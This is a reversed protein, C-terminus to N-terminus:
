PQRLPFLLRERVISTHIGADRLARRALERATANPARYEGLRGVVRLGASDINIGARTLAERAHAVPDPSGGRRSSATDSRQNTHDSHRARPNEGLLDDPHEQALDAGMPEEPVARSEGIRGKAVSRALEGLVANDEKSPELSPGRIGDGKLPLQGEACAEAMAASAASLRRLAEHIRQFAIVPNGRALQLRADDYHGKAQAFARRVAARHAGQCRPTEIMAATWYLLRRVDQLREPTREVEALFERIRAHLEIYEAPERELIYVMDTPLLSENEDIVECITIGGEAERHVSRVAIQLLFYEGSALLRRALLQVTKDRDTYISECPVRWRAGEQRVGGVSLSGVAAKWLERALAEVESPGDGNRFKSVLDAAASFDARELWQMLEAPTSASPEALEALERALFGQPDQIRTRDPDAGLIRGRREMMAILDDIPSVPEGKEAKNATMVASGLRDLIEDQETRTLRRSLWRVDEIEGADLDISVVADEVSAGEPFIAVVHGKRGRASIELRYGPTREFADAVAQMWTVSSRATVANQENKAAQPEAARGTTKGGRRGRTKPAIAEQIQVPLNPLDEWALTGPELERDGVEVFVDHFLPHSAVGIFCALGQGSSPHHFRLVLEGDALKPQGSLKYTRRGVEFEKGFLAYWRMWAHQARDREKETAEIEALDGVVVKMSNLEDLVGPVLGRRTSTSPARWTALSPRFGAEWLEAEVVRPPIRHAIVVLEGQSEYSHSRDKSYAALVNKVWEQAMPNTGSEWRWLDAVLASRFDENPECYRGLLIKKRDRNQWKIGTAVQVDVTGPFDYYFGICGEGGSGTTLGHLALTDYNTM